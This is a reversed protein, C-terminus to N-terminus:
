RLHTTHHHPNSNDNTSFLLPSKYMSDPMAAICAEFEHAMAIPM